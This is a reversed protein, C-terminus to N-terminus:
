NFSEIIENSLENPLNNFDISSLQFLKKELKLPYIRRIDEAVIQAPQGALVIYKKKLYSKNVLSSSAIITFKDTQTGKNIVSRNGIWNYDGIIIEQERPKLKQRKLDYTFHFDSDIVQSEFAIQTFDGITIKKICVIKISSGFFTNEGIKLEAKEGTRILFNSSFESKGTFTIKSDPALIILSAGKVTGLYDKNIGMKIMGRDIKCQSFEIKGKLLYIDVKGYLFVPLKLATKFPMTRFNFLITKIINLKSYNLKYIVKDIFKILSKM